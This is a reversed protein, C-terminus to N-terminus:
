GQKKMAEEGLKLKTALEAVRKGLARALASAGPTFPLDAMSGTVASAGYPSGGATTTFLHDESYPIGAIIMGHHLMPIFMTLLTTEQGGHISTSSTFAAGIKGVLGGKVWVGATKDIFDKLSSSMNGYRTPSGFIVADADFLDNAKAEPISKLNERIKKWREDKQIIEEPALEATRRLIVECGKVSRAGEAILEALKLTNGYRTYFIIYVKIM